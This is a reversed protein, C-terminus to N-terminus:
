NMYNLENEQTHRQKQEAKDLSARNTIQLEEKTPEKGQRTLPKTCNTTPLQSAIHGQQRLLERLIYLIVAPLKRGAGQSRPTGTSIQIGM